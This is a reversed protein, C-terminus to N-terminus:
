DVSGKRSSTNYYCRVSRQEKPISLELFWSDGQGGGAKIGDVLTWVDFGKGLKHEVIQGGAISSAGAEAFNFCVMREEHRLRLADFLGERSPGSIIIYQTIM